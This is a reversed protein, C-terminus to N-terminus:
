VSTIWLMLLIIHLGVAVTQPFPAAWMLVSSSVTFAGAMGMQGDPQCPLFLVQVNTFSSTPYSSLLIQDLM